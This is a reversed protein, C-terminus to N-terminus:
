QRFLEISFPQIIRFSGIHQVKVIFTLNVIFNVAVISVISVTSCLSPSLHADKLDMAFTKM